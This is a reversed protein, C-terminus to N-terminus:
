YSGESYGAGMTVIGIFIAGYFVNNTFMSLGIGGFFLLAGFAMKSQGATHRAEKRQSKVLSFAETASTEAEEGDIGNKNLFEIVAKRQAGRLFMESASKILDAKEM